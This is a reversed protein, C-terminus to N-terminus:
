TPSPGSMVTSVGPVGPTAFTTLPTTEPLTISLSTMAAGLDDTTTLRVGRGLPFSM